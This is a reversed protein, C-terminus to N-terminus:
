CVSEFVRETLKNFIVLKPLNQKEILTERELSFAALVGRLTLFHDNQYSWLESLLKLIQYCSFRM